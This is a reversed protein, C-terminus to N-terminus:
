NPKDDDLQARLKAYAALCNRIIVDNGPVLKLADLRDPSVFEMAQGEFVHIPQVGDYVDWFVYRHVPTGDPLLGNFIPLPKPQKMVYGTEELLERVAGEQPTEGPELSGAPITWYGPYLISPKEDRLQLLVSGDPKILLGGVSIYMALRAIDSPEFNHHRQSTTTVNQCQFKFGVQGHHM